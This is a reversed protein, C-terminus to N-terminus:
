RVPILGVQNRQIWGYRQTQPDEVLLWDERTQRVWLELGENASFVSKAEAFPSVRVPANTDTVVASPERYRLSTAVILLVVSIVALCGAALTFGRLSRQLADNFRGAFILSFWAWVAIGAGTAWENLSLMGLIGNSNPNAKGSAGSSRSRLFELNSRVEADRPALRQALRMHTIAQGLHGLQYAAIGLNNELAVSTRNSSVLSQYHSFAAKANGQALERNAAAFDASAEAGKVGFALLFPLVWLVSRFLGALSKGVRGFRHTRVGATM